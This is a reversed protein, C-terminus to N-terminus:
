PAGNPRPRFRFSPCDGTDPEGGQAAAVSREILPGPVGAQEGNWRVWEPLLGYAEATGPEEPLWDDDMYALLARVRHPSVANEYGPLTGLIWDGALWRVPEGSPERGHRRAYWDGFAKAMGEAIAVHDPRSGGEDPWRHGRTAMAGAIDHIRRNARFLNDAHGRPEDGRFPGNPSVDCHVVFGLQSYDAVPEPVATSATDGKGDRWAAAAQELSDFVAADVPTVAVCADVDLLFVHPDVGGPYGCEALVAFRTRYDDRMAWIGGTVSGDPCLGLWDPAAASRRPTLARGADRVARMAASRLAPSGIAALGHLLRWPAQWGGDEGAAEAKVRDAAARVLGEFWREFWLGTRPENLAWYVEAGTLEAVAQELERPGTAAMLADQRRLIRGISPGFWAPDERPGALLDALEALASFGSSPQGPQPGAAPLEAFRTDERGVAARASRQRSKQAKKQKKSTRGRSVPSMGLLTSGRSREPVADAADHKWAGVGGAGFHGGLVQKEGPGRQPTVRPDPRVLQPPQQDVAGRRDQGLQAQPEAARGQADQAVAPDVPSRWPLATARLTAAVEAVSGSLGVLVM